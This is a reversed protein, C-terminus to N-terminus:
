YLLILWKLTFLGTANLGNIIHLWQRPGFCKSGKLPFEMGILSDSRRGATGPLSWDEKQKKLNVQKPYKKSISDYLIHGNIDPKKWKAYCPENMTTHM